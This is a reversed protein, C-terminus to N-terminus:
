CSRRRAVVLGLISSGFLWVAAPLPVASVEVRSIGLDPTIVSTFDIASIFSGGKLANDTVALIMDFNGAAIATFSLTGVIGATSVGAFNGFALGELENSLVDPLRNFGPDTVLTSSSAFSFSQFSLVTEDYFIDLGGGLTPDSTFDAIVDLSFTEGVNASVNLDDFTVSTASVATSFGALLLFRFIFGLLNKM